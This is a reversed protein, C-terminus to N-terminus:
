AKWGRRWRTRGPGSGLTLLTHVTGSPGTTAETASLRGGGAVVSFSVRAGEVPFGDAARVDAAITQTDGVVRPFAGGDGLRLWVVHAARPEPDAPPAGDGCAALLAPVLALALRIPSRPRMAPSWGDHGPPARPRGHLRM